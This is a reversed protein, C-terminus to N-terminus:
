EYSSMLYTYDSTTQASRSHYCVEIKHKFYLTDVILDKKVAETKWDADNLQDPLRVLVM